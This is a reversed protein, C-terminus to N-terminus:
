KNFTRKILYFAAYKGTKSNTCNYSEYSTVILDFTESKTMSVEDYKGLEHAKSWVGLPHFNCSQVFVREGNLYAKRAKTKNVRMLTLKESFYDGTFERYDM